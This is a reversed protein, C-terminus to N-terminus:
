VCHLSPALRKLNPKIRVEILESRLHQILREIEYASPEPLKHGKSDAGINVFDPSANIIMAAFEDLCFDLIPEITLFTKVGLTPMAVTRDEPAPTSGM